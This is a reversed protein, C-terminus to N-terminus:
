QVKYAKVFGRKQGNAYGANSIPQGSRADGDVADGNKPGGTTGHSGRWGVHIQTELCTAAIGAAGFRCAIVAVCRYAFM